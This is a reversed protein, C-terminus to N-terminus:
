QRLLLWDKEVGLTQLPVDGLAGGHPLTVAPPQGESVLPFQDGGERCPARTGSTAPFGLLVGHPGPWQERQGGGARTSWPCQGGTGLAM